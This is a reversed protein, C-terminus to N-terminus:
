EPIGHNVTTPLKWPRRREGFGFTDNMLAQAFCYEFCFFSVFVLVFHNPRAAADTEEYADLGNSITVCTGQRSNGRHDRVLSLAM